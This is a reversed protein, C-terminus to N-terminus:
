KKLKPQTRGPHIQELRRRCRALKELIKEVRATWVFPKPQANWVAMFEDIAQELEAVSRFIAAQVSPGLEM